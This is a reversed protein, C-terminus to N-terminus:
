DVTTSDMLSEALRAIEDEHQFVIEIREPDYIYVDKIFAEAIKRSLKDEGAFSGAKNKLNSASEWLESQHDCEETQLKIDSELAEIRKMLETKKRLYQEKAISGNAYFEYQRLKEAKLKEIEGVMSKRNIKAAKMQKEAKDAAKMGLLELTSIHDKLAEWVAADVKKM